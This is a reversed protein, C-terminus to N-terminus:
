NIKFKSFSVMFIARQKVASWYQSEVLYIHALFSPYKLINKKVTLWVKFEIIDKLDFHCGTFKNWPIQISRFIFSSTRNRKIFM